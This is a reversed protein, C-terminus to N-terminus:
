AGAEPFSDYFRDRIAGPETKVLDMLTILGKVERIVSLLTKRWVNVADSEVDAVGSIACATEFIGRDAGTDKMESLQANINKVAAAILVAIERFKDWDPHDPSTGTHARMGDMILKIASDFRSKLTGGRIAECARKTGEARLLSDGGILAAQLTTLYGHYSWLAAKGQSVLDRVAEEAKRQAASRIISSNQVALRRAVAAARVLVKITAQLDQWISAAPFEPNVREEGIPKKGSSARGVDQVLAARFRELGEHATILPTYGDMPVRGELRALLEVLVVMAQKVAPSVQSLYLAGWAGPGHYKPDYVLKPWGSMRKALQELSTILAGSSELMLPRGSDYAMDRYDKEITTM